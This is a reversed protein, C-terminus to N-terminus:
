NDSRTSAHRNIMNFYDDAIIPMLKQVSLFHKIDSIRSPLWDNFRDLNLTIIKRLPADTYLRHNHIYDEYHYENLLDNLVESCNFRLADAALCRWDMVDYVKLEGLHLMAGLNYFVINAQHSNEDDDTNRHVQLNHHLQQISRTFETLPDGPEFPKTFYDTNYLNFIFDLDEKRYHMVPCPKIIKIQRLFQKLSISM